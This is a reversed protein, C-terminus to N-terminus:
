GICSPRWLLGRGVDFGVDGGWKLWGIFWQRLWFWFRFWLGLQRFEFSIAVESAEALLAIVVVVPRM